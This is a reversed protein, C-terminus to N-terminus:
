RGHECADRLMPWGRLPLRAGVCTAVCVCVRVRVCCACACVALARGRGRGGGARAQNRNAIDHDGGKIPALAEELYEGPSIPRGGAELRLQFDRLLWVFAPHFDVQGSSASAAGGGSAGGGGSGGASSGARLTQPPALM